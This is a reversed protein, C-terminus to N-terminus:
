LRIKEKYQRYLKPLRESIKLTRGSFDEPRQWNKIMITNEHVLSSIKEIFAQYKEQFEAKKEQFDQFMAEYGPDEEDIKEEKRNQKQEQIRRMVEEFELQFEEQELHQYAAPFSIKYPDYDVNVLNEYNKMIEEFFDNFKGDPKAKDFM